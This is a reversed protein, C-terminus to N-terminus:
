TRVEAERVSAQLPRLCVSGVGLEEEAGGGGCM